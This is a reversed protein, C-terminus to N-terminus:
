GVCFPLKKLSKLCIFPNDTIEGALSLGGADLFPPLRMIGMWTNVMM